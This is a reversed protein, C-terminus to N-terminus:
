EKELSSPPHLISSPLSPTREVGDEMKWKGDEDRM